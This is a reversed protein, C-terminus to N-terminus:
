FNLSFLIKGFFPILQISWVLDSDLYIYLSKLLQLFCLNFKDEYVIKMIKKKNKIKDFMSCGKTKFFTFSAIHDWTCYCVSAKSM